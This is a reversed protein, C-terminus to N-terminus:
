SPKWRVRYTAQGVVTLSSPLGILPMPPNVPASAVVQVYQLPAEGGGCDNSSAVQAGGPTCTWFPQSPTVTLNALSPSAGLGAAQMGSINTQNGGQSGFGAAANAAEVVQMKREEYLGFDVTGGLIVLLLPLAFAVEVLASGEEAGCQKWFTM